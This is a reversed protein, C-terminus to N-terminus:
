FTEPQPNQKAKAKRTTNHTHAPYPCATPKSPQSRHITWDKPCLMELYYSEKLSWASGLFKLWFLFGVWVYVLRLYGFCSRGFGVALLWDVARAVQRAAIDSPQTCNCTSGPTRLWKWGITVRNEGELLRPEQPEFIQLRAEWFQGQATEM